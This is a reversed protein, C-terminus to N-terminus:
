KYSEYQKGPAPYKKAADDLVLIWDIMEGPDPSVFTREANDYVGIDIAKGTRPNYWWARVKAARIADKNVTFERGVPAYVMAYTRDVDGTAVFRYCGQGPMSTVVSGFKIVYDTAPVRTFFPRSEILRRGHVMQSAGPRDLAERWSMLPNNIGGSKTPDYMQWISHHGYTHGFTGSFLDWYMARRVDSSISHGRRDAQFAVPHDEYLPEGDLVPKVPERNYDESTKSYSTFEVEHGNQRMNFDLWDEDHFFQGSGCWGTPHYTMLHVGGDGERLGRAMSRIVDKQVENEPNRDGGLIWIINADKYREGLFRGYREANDTDFIPDNDHWYRGWTPLFGICIGKKNALEVIYDVHDWYDDNEGSGTKLCSPDNDILPLHGYANPESIGDIEALGVAQVVTFGKAARDSLYLDAEERSLRHFLEWATDGLYFFPRGDAYQLFRGNDSVVIRDAAFSLIAVTQMLLVAAIRIESIFHNKMTYYITM